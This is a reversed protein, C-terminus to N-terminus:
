AGFFRSSSGVVRRVDVLALYGKREGASPVQRVSGSFRYIRGLPRSACTAQKDEAFTGAFDGAAKRLGYTESATISLWGRM